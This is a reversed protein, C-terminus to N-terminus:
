FIGLIKEVMLIDNPSNINTFANKIKESDSFQMYNVDVIKFFDRVAYEYDGSLYGELRKLISINYIAHLPEINQNVVPVLIDCKNNQFYEIQRIIMSKEILPMDGAVVFLAEGTSTIMAAHIGGLPGVMRFQDSVIKYRSYEGFEEPTNTVIIIESFVQNLIDTIRSIITRGDIILNAKIRGDFRTNTGGALIVGSINSLM